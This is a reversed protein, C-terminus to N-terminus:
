LSNWYRVAAAKIRATEGNVFTFGDDYRFDALGIESEHRSDQPAISAGMHREIHIVQGGRKRIMEAENLFRVDSIVAGDVSDSRDLVRLRQETQKVWHDPDIARFCDTGVKQLIERITHGTTWKSAKYEEWELADISFGFQEACLMKLPQAFSVPTVHFVPGLDGVVMHDDVIADAFTTKGSGAAGAIGLLKM